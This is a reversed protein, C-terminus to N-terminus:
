DQFVVIRYDPQKEEEKKDNPFVGVKIKTFLLDIEGTMIAKTKKKPKWLGGIQRLAMKRLVEEIQTLYRTHYAEEEFLVKAISLAKFWGNM